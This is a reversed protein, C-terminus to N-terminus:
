SHTHSLSCVKFLVGHVLFKEGGVRGGCNFPPVSKAHNPLSREAIIVKGFTAATYEFNSTLHAMRKHAAIKVDLGADSPLDNLQHRADQFLNNWNMGSEAQVEESVGFDDKDSEEVALSNTIKSVQIYSYGAWDGDEDDDGETTSDGDVVQVDSPGGQLKQLDYGSAVLNPGPTPPSLGINLESSSLIQEELLEDQDYSMGYGYPAAAMNSAKAPPALIEKAFDIGDLSSEKGFSSSEQRGKAVSLYGEPSKKGKKTSDTRKKREQGSKAEKKTVKERRQGIKAEPKSIGGTQDRERKSSRRPPADDLNCEAAESYDESLMEAEAFSSKRLMLREDSDEHDDFTMPPASYSPMRPSLKKLAKFPASLKQSAASLTQSATRSEKKARPAAGVPALKAENIEEDRLDTEISDAKKLRERRGSTSSSKKKSDASSKRSRTEKKEKHKKRKLGVAPKQAPLSLPAAPPLPQSPLSASSSPAGPRPVSGAVPPPGSSTRSSPKSAGRGRSGAPGRPGAAVGRRGQSRGRAPPAAGATTRPAGRAASPRAPQRKAPASAPAPASVATSYSFPESDSSELETEEEEDDEAEEDDSFPEGLSFAAELQEPPFAAGASAELPVLPKAPVSLQSSDGGRATLVRPPMPAALAIESTPEQAQSDKASRRGGQLLLSLKEQRTLAAFSSTERKLPVTPLVGGQFTDQMPPPTGDRATDKPEDGRLLDAVEDRSPLPRPKEALRKRMRRPQESNFM